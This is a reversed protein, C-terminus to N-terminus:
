RLRVDCVRQRAQSHSKHKDFIHSPKVIRLSSRNIREQGILKVVRAASEALSKL